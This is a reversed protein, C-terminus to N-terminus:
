FSEESAAEAQAAAEPGAAEAERLAREAQEVDVRAV